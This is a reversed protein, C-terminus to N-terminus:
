PFYIWFDNTKTLVYNEIDSAVMNFLTMGGIGIVPITWGLVFGDDVLAFLVSPAGSDLYFGVPLVSCVNGDEDDCSYMRGLSFGIYIGDSVLGPLPLAEWVTGELFVLGINPEVNAMCPTAALTLILGFSILIKM